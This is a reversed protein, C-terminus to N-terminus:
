PVGKSSRPRTAHGADASSYAANSSATQGATSLKGGGSSSGAGASSRGTDAAASAPRGFKGQRERQERTVTMFSASGKTAKQRAHVRHGTLGLPGAQGPDDLRPTLDTASGRAAAAAVAAPTAAQHVFVGINPGPAQLVASVVSTRRMEQADAMSARTNRVSQQPQHVIEDAAATEVAAAPRKPSSPRSTSSSSHGAIHTSPVHKQMAEQTPRYHAPGPSDAEIHVRGVRDAQQRTTTRFAASGRQPSSSRDTEASSTASRPTDYSQHPKHGASSTSAQQQLELIKQQMAVVRADLPASSHRAVAAAAPTPGVAAPTYQQYVSQRGVVAKGAAPHDAAAALPGSAEILSGPLLGAGPAALLGINALSIRGTTGMMSSRPGAAAATASSPALTVAAAAGDAGPSAPRQSTPGVVAATPSNIVSSARSRTMRGTLLKSFNDQVAEDAATVTDSGSHPSAVVEVRDGLSAKTSATAAPQIRGVALMEAATLCTKLQTSDEAAAADAPAASSARPPLGWTSADAAPDSSATCVSLRSKFTSRGLNSSALAPQQQTDATTARQGHAADVSM